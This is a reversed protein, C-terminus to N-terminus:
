NETTCFYSILLTLVKHLNFSAAENISFSFYGEKLKDKKKKELAKALGYRMKHPTIPWPVQLKNTAKPDCM